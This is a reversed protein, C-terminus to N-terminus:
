RGYMQKTPMPTASGAMVADKYLLYIRGANGRGGPGFAAAGAVLTGGRNDLTDGQLVIVGPATAATGATISGSNAILLQGYIEIAGGRNSTLVNHDASFGNATNGTHATVDITASTQVSSAIIVLPRTGIVHIPGELMLDKVQLLALEGGNGDRLVQKFSVGPPLQVGTITLNGTDITVAAGDKAATGLALDDAGLLEDGVALNVIDDPSAPTTGTVTESSGAGPDPDGGSGAGNGADDDAAGSPATAPFACASIMLACATLWKHALM